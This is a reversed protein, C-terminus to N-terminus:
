KKIKNNFHINLWGEGVFNIKRGTVTRTIKNSKLLTPKGINKWTQTNIISIDSGSDLQMKVKKNQIKVNLYKRINQEQNDIQTIKVRSQKIKKCCLMKHGKRNCNRCIKYKYLCGKYWHFQGCGYCASPPPNEEHNKNTSAPSKWIRRVNAIGAEEIKQSDQKINVHEQCYDALQQLSMNQENELKTLIRRRM